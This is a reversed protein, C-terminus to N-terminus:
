FGGFEDEAAMRAEVAELEALGEEDLLVERPKSGDPPGVVGKEELMDMIRGARAYGVKLRRQLGSTSGLQSEVVIRAAEWVLPDDDGAEHSAGGGGGGGMTAPAVASLIEEHYDAPSQEKVFEVVSFIEEDSVYCGQIRKPKGWDVRSFLMDGQGILKEAGTQDLIVRSDIGTAVTLGIRNTINAKILGTVVNSSPRQTAVIMHIGAARGLQAIRVISAEVDKGAVMMLDSLEDIVIVLYPMKAPPNDYKEFEGAAQKENFTSIKRVGIREFIKLRREMESVAWQLASAAQKPETVVPVYLHPLGDYPAFEVRKPDVMILRVDEPFTRMLLSMLISSIVVSKGSGTTGAILLHPMKALDAVMPQGEADRGLAFELPGGQVYPLIDGFAVTQRTRNPIEIGVLSTGPIPAFIRVSDTALSLAIDDELNTIRSVREGEGPQVKFTTVTPGAIWGVVRSHLGFEQLTAQLGEATQELEKSSSTSASAAPNHRLMSIPPLQRGEEEEVGPAACVVPAPAPKAPKKSGAPQQTATQPMAGAVAAGAAAAGAAAAPKLFSPIPRDQIPMEAAAEPAAKIKAAGRRKAPAAKQEPAPNWPLEDEQGEEAEDAMSSLQSSADSIVDLARPRPPLVTTPAAPMPDVEAVDAAYREKVPILTTKAQEARVQASLDVFPDEEVDPEDERDLLTTARNGLYTTEASGDDDFLHPQVPQQAAARQPVVPERLGEDGWPRENVDVQRRRALREAREIASRAFDSVSFGVIILGLLVVGVLVVYSITKGLAALLVSAIFAGLYGGTASLNQPEFLPASSGDAGACSLSLMAVVACFILVAGAGTRASVPLTGRLFLLAAGALMCLPLVYAGLGFGLHYFGAIASTVPATSPSVVAIFSAVAVIALVVGAMDRGSGNELLPAVEIDSGKERAANARLAAASAGGQGKGRGRAAGKKAGQAGKAGKNGAAAM